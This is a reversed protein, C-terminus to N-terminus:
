SDAVADVEEVLAPVVVTARALEAHSLREAVAIALFRKQHGLDVAAALLAGRLLDLFREAPELGVADVEHLEVLHDAHRIRFAHEARVARQFRHHRRLARALDAVDTEGAVLAGGDMEPHEVGGPRVPEPEVRHLHRQVHHIRMVVAERPVDHGPEDLLVDAHQPHLGQAIREDQHAAGHRGDLAEVIDHVQRRAHHDRPAVRQRHELLRQVRGAAKARQALRAHCRQEAPRLAGRAVALVLEVLRGMMEIPRVLIRMPQPSVMRTPKIPSPAIPLRMAPRNSAAWWSTTTYLRVRSRIRGKSCRPAFTAAVALCSAAPTSTTNELTALSAASSCTINPGSPASAPVRDPAITISILVTFGRVERRRCSAARLLPTDTSSAGTEPLVSCASCPCSTIKTPPSSSTYWFHWGM